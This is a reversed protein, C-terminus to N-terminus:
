LEILERGATTLVRRRPETPSGDDPATVLVDDEIRVGGWEPIYIGPEVTFVMGEALDFDSRPSMGPGDHVELGLSHGLGHGFHDGHGAAAIFDRALADVARGPVGPRIGDMARQQAELVTGYVRRQDDSARGLVITRTIDSCYGEWRAGFDMTVLDGTAMRRESPQGHPMATRPGSVVITPFAVEARHQKRIRWEIELMADLEAMGPRLTCCMHHFVEDAISCAHEIRAIEASDKILRLQRVVDSLPALEVRSDLSAQYSQMAAVTLHDAEVGVRRYGSAALMDALNEAGSSALNRREWQECEQAAQLTYRSDVAIWGDDAGVLVFGHSGTFGSVYRISLMSTLLIADVGRSSLSDRLKSVRSSVAMGTRM